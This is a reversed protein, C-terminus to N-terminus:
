KDCVYRDRRCSQGIMKNDDFLHAINRPSTTKISVSPSSLRIRSFVRFLRQGRVVEYFRKIPVRSIHRGREGLGGTGRVRSVGNVLDRRVQERLIFGRMFLRNMSVNSFKKKRKRRKKKKVSHMCPIQAKLV